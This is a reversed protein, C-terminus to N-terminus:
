LKCCIDLQVIEVKCRYFFLYHTTIKRLSMCVLLNMICKRVSNTKKVFINQCFRKGCLRHYQKNLRIEVLCYNIFKCLMFLGLEKSLNM